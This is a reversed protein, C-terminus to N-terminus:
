RRIKRTKRGKKSKPTQKRGAMKKYRRTGGRRRMFRPICHDFAQGGWYGFVNGLYVALEALGANPGIPAVVAVAEVINAAAEVHADPEAPALAELVPPPLAALPAVAPPPLAAVPAVAPPPLAALPPPLAAAVVRPPPAIGFLEQNLQRLRDDGRLAPVQAVARPVQAVARPVQAVARPVQALAERYAVVAHDRREVARRLMEEAYVRPRALVDEEDRNVADRLAKGTLGAEVYLNLVEAVAERVLNQLAAIPMPVVAVEARRRLAEDVERRRRRLDLELDVLTTLPVQRPAAVVARNDLPANRRYENTQLMMALAADDEGNQLLRVLAANNRNERPRANELLLHNNGGADENLERPRQPPLPAPGAEPIEVILFMYHDRGIDDAAAPGALDRARRIATDATDLMNRIQDRTIGHIPRGEMFEIASDRMAFAIDRRRQPTMNFINQDAYRQVVNKLGILRAVFEGRGGGGNAICEQETVSFRKTLITHGRAAYHYEGNEPRGCCACFRSDAIGQKLPFQQAIERVISGGDCIHELMTLCGERQEVMTVCYPCISTLNRRGILSRNFAGPFRNFQNFERKMKRERNSVAAHTALAAQHAAMNRGYQDVLALRAANRAQRARDIIAQIQVRAAQIDRNIAGVNANKDQQSHLKFDTETKEKQDNKKKELISLFKQYLAKFKDCSNEGDAVLPMKCSIKYVDYWKIALNCRQDDVDCARGRQPLEVEEPLSVKDTYNTLHADVANLICFQCAGNTTHTTHVKYLPRTEACIPCDGEVAALGQTIKGDKRVLEQKVIQLIIPDKPVINAGNHLPSSAINKLYRSKAFEIKDIVAKEVFGIGAVYKIKELPIAERVEQPLGELPVGLPAPPPMVNVRAMRADRQQELEAIRRQLAIVEPNQAVPVIQLAGAGAAGAGAAGAAGAAALIRPLNALRGRAPRRDM